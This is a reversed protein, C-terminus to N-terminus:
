ISSSLGRSKAFFASWKKIAREGGGRWDKSIWNFQSLSFFLCLCYKERREVFDFTLMELSM